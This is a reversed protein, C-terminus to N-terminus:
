RCLQLSAAGQDQLIAEGGEVHQSHRRPLQMSRTHLRPEAQHLGGTRDQAQTSKHGSSTTSRGSGDPSKALVCLM